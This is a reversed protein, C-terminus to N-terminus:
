NQITISQLEITNLAYGRFAVFNSMDGVAIDGSRDIDFELVYGEQGLKQGRHKTYESVDGVSIDGSKDWDCAVIGIMQDTGANVDAGNVILTFTRDFGYAYTVKAEYTGNPVDTLTFSGDDETLAFIEAGDETTVAVKAGTVPYSGYQEDPSALAGVYATVTYLSELEPSLDCTLGYISGAYGAEASLAYVNPISESSEGSEIVTVDFYSDSIYTYYPSPNVQMVDQMDVAADGLVEIGFTVLDLSSGAVASSGAEKDTSLVFFSVAGQSSDYMGDLGLEQQKWCANDASLEFEVFSEASIVAPDFSATFQLEALRSLSSVSVTMDYRGPSLFNGDCVNGESDTYSATIVPTQSGPAADAQAHAAFTGSAALLAACVCGLLRRLIKNRM